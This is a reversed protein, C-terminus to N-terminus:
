YRLSTYTLSASYKTMKRERIVEAASGTTAATVQVYCPALTDVATANWVLHRGAHRPTM